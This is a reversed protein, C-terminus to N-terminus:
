SSHYSTFDKSRSLNKISLRKRLNLKKYMSYGFLDQSTLGLMPTIKRKNGSVVMSKGGMFKQKDAGDAMEQLRFNIKTLKSSGVQFLLLNLELYKNQFQKKLYM